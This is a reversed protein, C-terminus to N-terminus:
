SIIVDPWRARMEQTIRQKERMSFDLFASAVLSAESQRM